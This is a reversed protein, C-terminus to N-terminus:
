LARGRANRRKKEGLELKGLELLFPACAIPFTLFSLSESRLAITAM